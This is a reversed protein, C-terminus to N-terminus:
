WWMVIDVEELRGFFLYAWYIYIYIYICIWFLIIPRGVVKLKDGCWLLLLLNYDIAV